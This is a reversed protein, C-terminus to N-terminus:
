FLTLLTAWYDPDHRRDVTFLHVFEPLSLRRLKIRLAVWRGCTNTDSDRKQLRHTNNKVTYGHSLATLHPTIKGQHIRLHYENHIKLEDDMKYGYSDFFELERGKAILSVWHGYNRKTQYLVVACGNPHLLEEMSSFKELDEYSIIRLDALGTFKRIEDASFSKFEARQIFDEM